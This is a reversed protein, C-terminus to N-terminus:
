SGGKKMQDEAKKKLDDIKSQWKKKLAEQKEKPLAEIKKAIEGMKEAIKKMETAADADKKMMLDLMKQQNALMDEMLKDEESKSSCGIVLAMLLTALGFVM